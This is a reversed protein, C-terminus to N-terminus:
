DACITFGSEGKDSCPIMFAHPNRKAIVDEPHIKKGDNRLRKLRRQKDEFDRRQTPLSLVDYKSRASKM